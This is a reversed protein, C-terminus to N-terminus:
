QAAEIQGIVKTMLSPVYKEEVMRNVIMLRLTEHSIGNPLTSSYAKLIDRGPLKKAWSGDAIAKEFKARAKGEVAKIKKQTLPGSMLGKSRETSREAAEYVAGSVDEAKPDYSLDIAETLHKSVYSVVQHRIAKPICKRACDRLEATLAELDVPNPFLASVVKAIIPIDILFNEIHYVPWSFLRVRESREAEDYDADVIGYFKTSIEGREFAQDLIEHLAAVKAKNSGSILNVKQAFAPFLTATMWKDFDTDGGGEFIVVRRDPQYAALDGVLDAVALDLNSGPGLPKLQNKNPAWTAVIM